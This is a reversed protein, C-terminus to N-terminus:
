DTFATRYKRRLRGFNYFSKISEYIKNCKKIINKAPFRWVACKFRVVIFSLLMVVNCFNCVYKLINRLVHHIKM